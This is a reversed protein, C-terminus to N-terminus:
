WYSLWVPRPDESHEPYFLVGRSFDPQCNSVSKEESHGPTRKCLMMKQALKCERRAFASWDLTVCARWWMVVPASSCMRHPGIQSFYESAEDSVSNMHRIYQNWTQKTQVHSKLHAPRRTTLTSFLNILIFFSQPLLPESQLVLKPVCQSGNQKM